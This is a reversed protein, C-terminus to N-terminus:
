LKILFMYRNPKIIIKLDPQLRLDDLTEIHKPDHKAMLKAIILGSFITTLIMACFTFMNALGPRGFKMNTPYGQNLAAGFSHFFVSSFNYMKSDDGNPRIINSFWVILTLALFSIIIGITTPFDFIEAVFNGSVNSLIRRSIIVVEGFNVAHTYDVLDHRQSTMGSFPHISKHM